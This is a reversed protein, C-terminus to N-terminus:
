YSSYARDGTALDIVLVGAGGRARCYALDSSGARVVHDEIKPGHGLADGARATRDGTALDVEIAGVDFDTVLVHREDAALDLGSVVHLFLPGSGLNADSVVERDGSVLDIRLVAEACGDIVYAFLGDATVRLGEPCLLDPGSGRHPGSVESRDGTALDVAFLSSAPDSFRRDAVYARNRGLDLDLAAPLDFDPGAGVGNGSIVRRDGSARDVAFLQQLSDVLFITRGDSASRVVFSREFLPGRGRTESSVESHAGTAPDIALLAVDPGLRTAFLRGNRDDGDVAGLTGIPESGGLFTEGLLSRRGTALEISIVAHRAADLVAVHGADLAALGGPSQLAIGGGTNADSLVTRNGTVLDVRFLTGRGSDVVLATGTAADFAVDAASVFAPGSGRTDDSITTRDGTVLDVALLARPFGNMVLVRGQADALDLAFPAALLPGSGHTKDSLITRAGDALSVAIVAGLSQDVVLLRDRAADLGVDEALRLAPGSSSADSLFRRDGSKLDIELVGTPGLTTEYAFDRGADVAFALPFVALPGTGRAPGSVEVFRGSPLDFAVAGHPEGNSEGVLLQGRAPDLALLGPAVPPTAFEVTVSTAPLARGTADHPTIALVQTPAPLAVTASWTRFGDSSTAAVGDVDIFAVAQGPGRNATTGRVTITRADTLSHAPPFLTTVAGTAAPAATGGGGGGGCAALALPAITVLLSGPRTTRRTAM